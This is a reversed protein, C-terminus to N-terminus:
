ICVVEFSVVMLLLTLFHVKLYKALAEDFQIEDPNGNMHALGENIVSIFCNLLIWNGAIMYFGFMIKLVFADVEFM